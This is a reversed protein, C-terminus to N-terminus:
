SRFILTILIVYANLVEIWLLRNKILLMPVSLGLSWAAVRWLELDFTLHAYGAFIIIFASVYHVTKTMPEKFMAAAGTFMMAVGAYFLFGGKSEFIIPLAIAWMSLTFWMPNKMKYASASISPLIGWLWFIIVLFITLLSISVIFGM